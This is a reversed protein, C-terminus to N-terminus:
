LKDNEVETYRKAIISTAFVTKMKRARLKLDNLLDPSIRDFINNGQTRSIGYPDYEINGTGINFDSTDQSARDLMIAIAIDFDDATYDRKNQYDRINDVYSKVIKNLGDLICAFAKPYKLLRDIADRDLLYWQTCIDFVVRHQHRIDLPLRCSINLDKDIIVNHYSLIKNDKQLSISFISKYPNTMYKWEVERIFEMVDDNFLYDGLESLNLLDKKNADLSVLFSAFSRYGLFTEMLKKDDYEPYRVFGIIEDSTKIQEQMEFKNFNYVNFNAVTNRSRYSTDVNNFTVYKEPLLENFVSVPYQVAIFEPKSYSFKYIFEATYTATDIDKQPKEPLDNFDYIGLVRTQSEQVVLSRFAGPPDHVATVRKSALRTFYDKFNENTPYNREKIEQIEKMLTLVGEPIGFNFQLTHLLGFQGGSALRTKLGNRWNVVETRSNSRFRVTLTVSHKFYIPTITFEAETDQFIPANNNVTTHVNLMFEPDTDEQVELHLVDKTLYEVKRNEDHMTSGKTPVVESDNPFLVNVDNGMRTYDILNNVVSMIANRSVTYDSDPIPVKLLPM